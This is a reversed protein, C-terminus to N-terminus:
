PVKEWHGMKWEVKGKVRPYGPSIKELITAERLSKTGPPLVFKRVRTATEWTENVKRVQLAQHWMGNLATFEVLFNWEPRSAISIPHLPKAVSRALDGIFTMEGSFPGANPDDQDVFRVSVNHLPYEGELVVMRWVEGKDNIGLQLYCFSNGGSSVNVGYDIRDISTRFGKMTENFQRQSQNIAQKIGKGIDQFNQTEQQRAEKQEKDHGARDKDISRYEVGFLTFAILLWVLRQSGTMKPLVTVITAVLALLLVAKGPAPPNRWWHLSWSLFVIQFVLYLKPHATTRKILDRVQSSSLEMFRRLVVVSAQVIRKPASFANRLRVVFTPPLIGKYSPIRFRVGM